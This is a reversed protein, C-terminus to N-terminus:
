LLEKRLLRSRQLLASGWPLLLLGAGVTLVTEASAVAAMRVLSEASGSLWVLLPTLVLWKGAEASLVVLTREFMGSQTLQARVISAALAAGALRVTLTRASCALYGAVQFLRRRMRTLSMGRECAPAVVYRMVMAVNAAMSALAFYVQNVGLRGSPPHHLGLCRLPTKFHNEHGQKTSYLQWLAGAAGCGHTLRRPLDGPELNSALFSYHWVGPLEGQPRWRRVAITVPRPWGAFQHTMLCVQSAAWGRAADPGGERWVSEPQAEALRRLVGRYQNACVIWDCRQPLAEIVARECFAADLLALQRTRGAAEDLLPRARRLMGPLACGEDANGALLEQDVLVPGVRLTMWRLIQEGNRDTRAADFCRGSVELDTGDGFLVTWGSLKIQRHCLKKLCRMAVAREARLLARRRRRDAAEPAEPVQRRHRPQAKPQGFMDLRELGPGAPAYTQSFVRQPLGALECLVRYTTADSAVAGLGFIQAVQGDQRLPEMLDMGDGGMLLAAVAGYAFEGSTFGAQASRAPLHTRLVKLVGLRRLTQEILVSGAAASVCLDPDVELKVSRPRKTDGQVQM